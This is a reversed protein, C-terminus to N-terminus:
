RRDNDGHSHRWNWYDNQESRKAKAFDHYKRHHEELYRRYAKDEDGNWEHSDKHAKDEYRRSQQNNQSNNPRDRDQASVLLPVALTASLVIVKFYRYVIKEQLSTLCSSLWTRLLERSFSAFCVPNPERGRLSLSAAYV